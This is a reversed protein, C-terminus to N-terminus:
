LVIVSELTEGPNHLSQSRWVHAYVSLVIEIRDGIFDAITGADMGAYILASVAGHRFGHFGVRETTKDYTIGADEIAKALVRRANHYDPAAASFHAFVFAKPSKDASAMYQALLAKRLNPGLKIERLSNDTKLAKVMGDRGLQSSFSITMVPSEPDVDLDQWRLGLIESIRAGTLSATLFLPRWRDTTAAVVAAVELPTLMRTKRKNRV